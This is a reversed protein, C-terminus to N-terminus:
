VEARPRPPMRRALVAWHLACLAVSGLVNLAPDLDRVVLVGPTILAANPMAVFIALFVNIGAHFGAPAELGDGRLALWGMYLGLVFWDAFAWLGSAAAEPNASHLLTFLAAPVVLRVITLGTARATVQQIYGRFLTEEALAQFPILVLIAPLFMALGAPRWRVAFDEPWLALQFGTIAGLLVVTAAFSGLALGWRAPRNATLVSRVPRGHLLRVAVLTAPLVVIVSLLMSVFLLLLGLRREAEWDLRGAALDQFLTADYLAAPLTALAAGLAGLAAILLVALAYRWWGRAGGQGTRDLEVFPPSFPDTM